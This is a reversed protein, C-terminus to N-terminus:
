AKAYTNAPDIHLTSFKVRNKFGSTIMVVAKLLICKNLEQPLFYRKSFLFQGM